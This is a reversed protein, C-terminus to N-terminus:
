LINDCGHRDAVHDLTRYFSDELVGAYLALAHRYETAADSWEQRATILHNERCAEDVLRYCADMKPHAAEFRAAAAIVREHIVTASDPFVM